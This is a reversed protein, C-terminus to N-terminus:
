ILCVKARSVDFYALKGFKGLAQKLISADVKDTVNKIYASATDIQGGLSSPQQRHQKRTNDPGATQWGGPSPPVQADDTLGTTTIAAAANVTVDTANPPFSKSAARPQSPTQKSTQPGTAAAASAATATKGSTAISAWTKPAAPKPPTTSKPVSDAVLTAAAAKIPSASVPTPEPDKPKEEVVKEQEEEREIAQIAEEPSPASPKVEETVDKEAQLSESKAPEEKEVAAIVSPLVEPGALTEELKADLIEVDKEQMSTDNTITSALPESKPSAEVSPETEAEDEEDDGSIYRFIDNLVYYGNPQEALIFTQVFKRHPLGKNSMEGIVQAVIDRGSEQSDVNTVRVKADQINLEKIRDAIAKTFGNAEYSKEESFRSFKRASWCLSTSKRSGIRLRISFTQRLLSLAKRSEQLTHHLIQM